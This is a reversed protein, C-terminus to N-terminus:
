MKMEQRLNFSLTKLIDLDIRLGSSIRNLERIIEDLYFLQIELDECAVEAVRKKASETKATSNILTSRYLHKYNLEVETREREYNTLQRNVEKLNMVTRILTNNINSIEQYDWFSGASEVSELDKWDPFEPMKVFIDSM